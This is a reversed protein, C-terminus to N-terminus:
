PKQPFDFRSFAFIQFISYMLVQMSENNLPIDFPIDFNFYPCGYLEIPVKLHYWVHHSGYNINLFKTALVIFHKSQLLKQSLSHVQLIPFICDLTIKKLMPIDCYFHPVLYNVIQM